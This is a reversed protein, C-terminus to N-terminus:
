VSSDLSKTPTKAAKEPKEQPPAPKPKNPKQYVVAYNNRSAEILRAMKDQDKQILMPLTKGSLPAEPNTASVKMYFHYRPLNSIDGPSVQPALQALMLDEDIPSATRFCIVTGTNALIVNVVNRDSQQATSQEAITIRLGFKRGGSLLKTFSSTAFNQFEDVFLYFPKRNSLEQRARRVTAQQFKAIITAGLLMSTDEGLRGEALNCIMIKQKDMIEDFNITSKSQELIRRAIPSFLFRGIKATVGGVMKVHQWDGAKGFENKWFNILNEDRLGKLASKRFNADNLLDYVTFITCNEITFATYITNRLIYEIRHADTLEDHFFVRRFISVIGECVLEKELELDDEDACPSLELLNIGIPFKVDFPNFYILDGARAEPVTNLLDEALDGHPDIVALGRGKGIDDKAMHYIITTKGSGTQGILYVHRSRDDDTLGIDVSTNGFTSKAFTVDFAQNNKISLTAPLDTSGTRVLDETQSNTTHPFHYLAALESASLYVPHGSFRNVFQWERYKRVLNIPLISKSVLSQGSSHLFTAFSSIIGKSRAPIEQKELVLLARISTEYLPKGIKAKITESIEKDTTSQEINGSKPLKSELGTVFEALFLLPILLIHIASELISVIFIATRQAKNQHIYQNQSIASRTKRIENKIPLQDLGNLPRVVIQFAMIDGAKLQTMNSALYALPDHKKLDAQENLPLSFHKATKFELVKTEKDKNDETLYDDTQKIKIGPVYARLNKEVLDALSQSVRLLYRIGKEKQSVIELSCFSQKLVLRDLWSSDDILDLILSLLETTSVPSIQTSQPPTIELIAFKEHRHHLIRILLFILGLLFNLVFLALVILVLYLFFRYIEQWPLRVFWGSLEPSFKLAAIININQLSEM